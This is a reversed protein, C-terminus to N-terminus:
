SMTLWEDFGIRTRLEGFRPDARLNDFAPEGGLFWVLNFDREEYAREFWAFVADLDGLGLAVLALYASPVYGQAAHSQLEDLIAQAETKRNAVGYAHGLRAYPVVSEGSLRYADELAAIAEQEQGLMLRVMGLGMHGTWHQPDLALAAEVELLAEAYRRAYYLRFVLNDRVFPITPDLDVARRSAEIAEDHRGVYSLSQGYWLHALSSSPDLQIGARFERQASPWDWDYLLLVQGLGSHADSISEDLDLAGLVLRKVEPMFNRPPLGTVQGLFGLAGALGVYPLAFSSDRAIAQQYYSLSAQLGAATRMEWFHRGLRYLNLAELSQTPPAGLRAVTGPAPDVGLASAVERAVDNEISFINTTTLERRYINSWVLQDTAAEILQVEFQVESATELAGCRVIAGVGLEAAIEPSNKTTGRYAQVSLWSKVQLSGITSFKVILEETMRDSVYQKEPDRSLNTCPLVAISKMDAASGGDAFLVVLSVVLAVAFTALAARLVVGRQPRVKVSHAGDEPVHALWALPIGIYAMARKFVPAPSVARPRELEEVFQQAAAFRDAPVKALAKNIATEISVPVTSRVIRISPVNESVHRALIARASSGTFPPQGALMEYLVCGLSYIDSRGDLQQEASAQEPSMYAPTGLAIGTATLKEGGAATIARAIGFDAVLAHGEHLLINEPKIDRHLVDHGHASGLADAVERAIQIADEIPLQTERILRARLSEGEVYPMVYYFFGDAEGSDFVPVIHPHTLNAVITVERFFRAVGLTTATLEPRLIKIAVQRGHKLDRALYVIAMGGQGLPREITYRDALAAKLSDFQESMNDSM